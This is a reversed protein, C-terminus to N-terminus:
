SFYAGRPATFVVDPRRDRIGELPRLDIERGHAAHLREFFLNPHLDDVGQLMLLHEGCVALSDSSSNQQISRRTTALRMNSAGRRTLDLRSEHTDADVVHQVHPHSVAFLLQM